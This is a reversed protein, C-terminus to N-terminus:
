SFAVLHYCRQYKSEACRAVEGHSADLVAFKGTSQCAVCRESNLRPFCAQCGRCLQNQSQDEHNGRNLFVESTADSPYSLGRVLNHSRHRMTGLRAKGHLDFEFYRSISDRMGPRRHPWFPFVTLQLLVTAICPLLSRCLLFM